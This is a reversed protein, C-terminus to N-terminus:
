QPRKHALAATTSHPDSTVADVHRCRDTNEPGSVVAPSGPENAGM